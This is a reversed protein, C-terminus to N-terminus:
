KRKNESRPRFFRRQLQLKLKSPVLVRSFILGVCLCVCFTLYLLSISVSVTVFPLTLSLSSSSSPPPHQPPPAFHSFERVPITHVKGARRRSLFLSFTGSIRIAVLCLRQWLYMCGSVGGEIGAVIGDGDM